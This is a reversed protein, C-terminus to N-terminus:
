RRHSTAVFLRRIRRMLGNGRTWPFNRELPAFLQKEGIDVGFFQVLRRLAQDGDVVAVTQGGQVTQGWYSCVGGWCEARLIMFKVRPHHASMGRVAAVIDEPLQNEPMSLTDSFRVGVSKFPSAIKAVDADPWERSCERPLGRSREAFIGLFKFTM